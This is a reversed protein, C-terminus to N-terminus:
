CSLIQLLNGVHILTKEAYCAADGQTKSGGSKDRRL